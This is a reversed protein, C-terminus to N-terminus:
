DGIYRSRYHCRRPHVHDVPITLHLVLEFLTSLVDVRKLLLNPDSRETILLGPHRLAPIGVSPDMEVQYVTLRGYV